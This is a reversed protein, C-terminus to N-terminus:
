HEFKPDNQQFIELYILFNKGKLVWELYTMNMIVDYPSKESNENLERTIEERLKEQIKENKSLEYLCFTITASSTEFGGLFFIFAQAVLDNFTMQDGQGNKAFEGRIKILASMIDKKDLDKQNERFELVEKYVEMFFNQAFENVIKLGLFRVVNPAMVALIKVVSTRFSTEFFELGVKRFEADPNKLSNCDM